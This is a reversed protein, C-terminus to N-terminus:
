SPKAYITSNIYTFRSELDKNRLTTSKNTLIEASSSIRKRLGSFSNISTTTEIKEPGISSVLSFLLVIVVNM